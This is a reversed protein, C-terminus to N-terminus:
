RRKRGDDDGIQSDDIEIEPALPDVANLYITRAVM